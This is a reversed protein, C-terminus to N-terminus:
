ASEGLSTDGNRHSSVRKNCASSNTRIRWAKIGIVSLAALLGVIAVAKASGATSDVTFDIEGLSQNENRSQKTIKVLASKPLATNFLYVSTTPLHHNNVILRHSGAPLSDIKASFELQIIGLGTRLDAPEPVDFVTIQLDLNRQDLQVYFDRKLSEAYSAAENTSIVGDHDRDIQSLVQDAVAVGPTLNIQLRIDGPEISVLNAQLYEDLRHAFVSAPLVLLALLLSLHRVSPIVAQVM